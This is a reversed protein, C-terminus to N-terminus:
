QASSRGRSPDKTYDTLGIVNGWPDAVEVTWGTAVEFPDETPELGRARLAAAAARADRVELWVRPTERPGHEHVPRVHVLLGPEEPGLRFMALGREPVEFKVALGLKGEYFELAQEFDGVAIVANDVGLVDLAGAHNDTM